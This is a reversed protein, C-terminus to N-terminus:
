HAPKEVHRILRKALIGVFNWLSIQDRRCSEFRFLVDAPKDVDSGREPQVRYVRGSSRNDVVKIIISKQIDNLSAKIWTLRHAGEAVISITRERIHGRAR